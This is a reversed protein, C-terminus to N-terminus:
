GHEPLFVGVLELGAQSVHQTGPWGLSRISGVGDQELDVGSSYSCFFLWVSYVM